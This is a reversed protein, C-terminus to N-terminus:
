LILLIITHYFWLQTTKHIPTQLTRCNNKCIREIRPLVGKMKYQNQIAYEMSIMKDTAPYGFYYQFLQVLQEENTFSSNTKHQFLVGMNFGINNTDNLLKRQQEFFDNDWVSTIMYPEPFYRYQKIINDIITRNNNNLFLTSKNYNVSSGLGM